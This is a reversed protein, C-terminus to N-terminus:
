KTKALGCIMQLGTLLAAEMEAAPCIAAEIAQQKLAWQWAQPLGGSGTILVPGQFTGDRLWPDLDSAICAGALFAMGQEKTTRGQQQLLRVCFLARSLGSKRQEIMGADIWDLEPDELRGQPLASALITQSQVAHILEGSLTTASSVIRRDADSRIAKWHSGLNLLTGGPALNGMSLLGVCLTEEGRMVDIQAARTADKAALITLIGPVLLIKLDSVDPRQILRVHASLERQGAPAPIHPVEELGLSSTIMGAGLIVQPPPLDCTAQASVKELLRRLEIHVQTASGWRATDRVGFPATAQAIVNGAHVLWARTNTTGMDVCLVSKEEYLRKIM